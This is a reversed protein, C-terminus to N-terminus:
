AKRVPASRLLDLMSELVEFRVPKTLHLDFGAAATQKRADEDGFGTVAIIKLASPGRAKRLAEAVQVGPVDPLSLDLLLVDPETSLALSVAERGDFGVSATDGLDEIAEKLSLATDRDDDIILVRLPEGAKRASERHLHPAYDSM